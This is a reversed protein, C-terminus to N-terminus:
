EKKFLIRTLLKGTELQIKLWYMGAKFQHITLSYEFVPKIHEKKIINGYLDVLQYRIIRNTTSQISVKNKSPNPFLILHNLSNRTNDREEFVETKGGNGVKTTHTLLRKSDPDSDLPVIRVLTHGPLIHIKSLKSTTIVGEIITGMNGDVELSTILIDNLCDLHVVRVGHVIEDCKDEVEQSIAEKSFFISISIIIATIYNRNKM